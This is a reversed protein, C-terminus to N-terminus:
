DEHDHGHQDQLLVDQGGAKYKAGRAKPKDNKVEKGGILLQEGRGGINTVTEAVFSKGGVKFSGGVEFGSIFPITFEQNNKSWGSVTSGDVEIDM